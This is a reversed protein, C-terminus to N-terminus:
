LFLQRSNVNTNEKILSFLEYILISFRQLTLATWISFFSSYTEKGMVLALIKQSFRFIANLNIYFYTEISVYSSMIKENVIHKKKFRM